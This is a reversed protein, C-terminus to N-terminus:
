MKCEHFSHFSLGKEKEVLVNQRMQRMRNKRVVRADKDEMKIKDRNWWRKKCTM